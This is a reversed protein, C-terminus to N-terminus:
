GRAPKKPPMATQIDPKGTRAIIRDVALREAESLLQRSQEARFLAFALLRVENPSTGKRFHFRLAGETVNLSAAIKCVSEGRVARQFAEEIQIHTLKTM